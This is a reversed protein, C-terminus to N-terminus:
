CELSSNYITHDIHEIGVNDFSFHSSYNRNLRIKTLCIILMIIIIIIIYIRSVFLLQGHDSWTKYSYLGNVVGHGPYLLKGRKGFTKSILSSSNHYSLRYIFILIINGKNGNNNNNHQQTHQTTIRNSCFTNIFSHLYSQSRCSNEITIELIM